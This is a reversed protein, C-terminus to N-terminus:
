HNMSHIESLNPSIFPIGLNMGRLILLCGVIAILVPSAWKIFYSFKGGLLRGLASFVALVPLTALGFIVMSLTAQLMNDAALAAALAVYVLGCPLIGNLIGLMFRDLPSKGGLYRSFQSKLWTLFRRTIGIKLNNGNLLSIVLGFLLLIGASISIWRQMGALLLGTGFIGFIFGLFSYTIIRGTHYLVLGGALKNRGSNAALILPGCMGVCHLSGTLGLLFTAIFIESM